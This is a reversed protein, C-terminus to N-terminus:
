RFPTRPNARAPARGAGCMQAPAPEPCGSRRGTSPTWATSRGRLRHGCGCRAATSSREPPCRRSSSPSRSRSTPDFTDLYFQITKPSLCDQPVPTTSCSRTNWYEVLLNALRLQYIAYYNYVARVSQSEGQRFWRDQAGAKKSAAVLISPVGPIPNTLFVNLLNRQDELKSISALIQKTAGVRGPDNQELKLLNAMDQQNTDIANIIPVTPRTADSYQGALVESLITDSTKQLDNVRKTLQEIM